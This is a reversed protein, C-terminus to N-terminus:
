DAFLEKLYKNEPAALHFVGTWDYEFRGDLPGFKKKYEILGIMGSRINLYGRDFLPVGRKAFDRAVVLDLFEQPSHNNMRKSSRSNFAQFSGNGTTQLYALLEGDKFAGYFATLPQNMQKEYVDTEKVMYDLWDIEHRIKNLQNVASDIDRVNEIKQTLEAKLALQKKISAWTRTLEILAPIDSVGLQRYEFGSKKFRKLRSEYEDVSLPKQYLRWNLNSQHASITFYHTDLISKPFGRFIVQGFQTNLFDVLEELPETINDEFPRSVTGYGHESRVLFTNRQGVLLTYKGEPNRNDEIQSLHTIKRTALPALQTFEYVM